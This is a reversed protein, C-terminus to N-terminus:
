TPRQQLLHQFIGLASRSGAQLQHVGGKQIPLICSDSTHNLLCNEQEGLRLYAVGRELELQFRTRPSVSVQNASLFAPLENYEKLGEKTKGARVLQRALEARMQALTGMNTTLPMAARLQEVLRANLYGADRPDAQRLIEQLRAVMRATGPGQRGHGPPAVACYPDNTPTLPAAARVPGSFGALLILVPFFAPLCSGSQKASWEKNRGVGAEKAVVAFIM